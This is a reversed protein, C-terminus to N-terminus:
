QGYIGGWLVDMGPSVCVQLCASLCRSLSSHLTSINLLCFSYNGLPNRVTTYWYALLHFSLSDELCHSFCSGIDLPLLSAPTDASSLIVSYPQSALVVIRPIALSALVWAHGLGTVWFFPILCFNDKGWLLETAHQPFGGPHQTYSHTPLGKTFTFCSNQGGWCLKLKLSAATSGKKSILSWSEWLFCIYRCTVYLHVHLSSPLDKKWLISENQVLLLSSSVAPGWFDRGQTKGLKFVFGAQDM